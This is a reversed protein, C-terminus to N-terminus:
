NIHTCVKGQENYPSKTILFTFSIYKILTAYYYMM